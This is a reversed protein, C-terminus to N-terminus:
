PGVRWTDYGVKVKHRLRGGGQARLVSIGRDDPVMGGGLDQLRWRRDGRRIRTHCWRVVSGALLGDADCAWEDVGLTSASAVAGTAGHDSEARDRTRCAHISHFHPNPNQGEGRRPKTGGPKVASRRDTISAGSQDPWQAARPLKHASETEPQRALRAPASKNKHM